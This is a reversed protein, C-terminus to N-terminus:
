DGQGQALRLADIDRQLFHWSGKYQFGDLGRVLPPKGEQRREAEERALMRVMEISFGLLQAVEFMTYTDQEVLTALDTDFAHLEDGVVLLLEDIREKRHV